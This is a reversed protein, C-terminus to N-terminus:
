DLKQANRKHMGNPWRRLFAQITTTKFTPQTNPVNPRNELNPFKLDEKGQLAVPRYTTEALVRGLSSPQPEVYHTEDLGFDHM